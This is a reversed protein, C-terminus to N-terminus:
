VIRDDDLLHGQPARLYTSAKSVCDYITARGVGVHGPLVVPSQHSRDFVVAVRVVVAPRLVEPGAPFERCARRPQRGKWVDRDGEAPIDGRGPLRPGVHVVLAPAVAPAIGELVVPGICISHKPGRPHQVM